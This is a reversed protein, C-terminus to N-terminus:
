KINSSSEGFIFKKDNLDIYVIEGPKVMGYDERAVKEIFELSDSQALEEKLAKTEGELILIDKEINKKYKILENKKIGQNLFILFIMVAFLVLLLLNISFTSRKFRNKRKM